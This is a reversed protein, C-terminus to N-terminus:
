IFTFNKVKLAAKILKANNGPIIIHHNGLPNSKLKFLDEQPLAVELQTRCANSYNPRGIVKGEAVFATNLENNM